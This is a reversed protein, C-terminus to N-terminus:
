KRRLRMLFASAGIVGLAITSPEPVVALSFSTIGGTLTQTQGLGPLDPPTNPSGNLNEVGLTSYGTPVTGAALAAAYSTYAGNGNYWAAIALTAPSGNPVGPVSAAAGSNWSGAYGLNNADTYFNATSGAVASLGSFLSITGPGAYLQVSWIHGNGYDTASTGTDAANGGLPTGTYVTVGSPIDVATGHATAFAASSNGQTEQSPTAVQPSWVSIQFDGKLYDLMQVQGQSYGSVAGALLSLTVLTKKM